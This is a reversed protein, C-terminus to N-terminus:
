RAAHGRHVRDIARVAALNLETQDGAALPKDTPFQQRNLHRASIM